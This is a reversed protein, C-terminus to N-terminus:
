RESPEGTASANDAVSGEPDRLTDKGPESFKALVIALDEALRVAAERRERLMSCITARGSTDQKLSLQILATCWPDSQSISHLLAPDIGVPGSIVNVDDAIYSTFTARTLHSSLDLQELHSAEWESLFVRAIKGNGLAGLARLIERYDQTTADQGDTSQIVGIRASVVGDRLEILLGREEQRQCEVNRAASLIAVTRVLSSDLLNTLRSYADGSIYTWGRGADIWQPNVVFTKAIEQVLRESPKRKGGECFVVYQSSINLRKATERITLKAINRILKLRQGMTM